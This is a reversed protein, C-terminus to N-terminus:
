LKKMVKNIEKESTPEAKKPTEREHKEIKSRLTRQTQQNKEKEIIKEEPSKTRCTEEFRKQSDTKKM